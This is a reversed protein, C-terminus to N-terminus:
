WIRPSNQFAGAPSVQAGSTRARTWARSAARLGLVPLLGVLDTAPQQLAPHRDFVTGLPGLELLLLRSVGARPSRSTYGARPKRRADGNEAAAGQSRHDM